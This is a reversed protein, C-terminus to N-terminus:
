ISALGRKGAAGHGISIFYGVIAGLQSVRGQRGMGGWTAGSRYLVAIRTVHIKKSVGYDVIDLMPETSRFVWVRERLELGFVESNSGIVVGRSTEGCLLWPTLEEEDSEPAYLWMGAVTSNVLVLILAYEM